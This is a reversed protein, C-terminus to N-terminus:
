AAFAVDNHMVLEGIKAHLRHVEATHERRQAEPDVGEQAAYFTRLQATLSEISAELEATASSTGSEEQAAYFSEVQATLNVVTQKYEDIQQRAAEQARQLSKIQDNLLAVNTQEAPAISM